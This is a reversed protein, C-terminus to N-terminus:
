KGVFYLYYHILQSSEHKEASKRASVEWIMTDAAQRLKMHMPVKLFQPFYTCTSSQIKQNGDSRKVRHVYLSLFLFMHAKILDCWQLVVFFIGRSARRKRFKSYFLNYLLAKLQAILHGWFINGLEFNCEKLNTNHLTSYHLM